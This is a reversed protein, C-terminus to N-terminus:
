EMNERNVPNYHVLIKETLPTLLHVSPLHLLAPACAPCRELLTVRLGHVESLPFEAVPRARRACLDKAASLIVPTRARYSSKTLQPTETYVLLLLFHRWQVEILLFSIQMDRARLYIPDFSFLTNM